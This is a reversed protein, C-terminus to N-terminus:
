LRWNSDHEVFIEECYKRKFERIFVPDWLESAIGLDKCCRMLANSKAGEAATPLGTLDYYDQEGRAVSILRGGIFLCYERSINKKNIAANGRPALGWGGPGFAKNLIRRYKIEPLYLLGDPKCEIDEVDIPALLIDSIEKSFAQSSLGFTSKTWDSGNPASTMLDLASGQEKKDEVKNTSLSFDNAYGAPHNDNVSPSPSANENEVGSDRNESSTYIHRQLLVSTFNEHETAIRIGAIALLKEMVKGRVIREYYEGTSLDKEPEYGDYVVKCNLANLSIAWYDPCVAPHSQLKPFVFPSNLNQSSFHSSDSDPLLQDISFHLQQGSQKKLSTSSSIGIANEILELKESDNCVIWDLVEKKWTTKLLKIIHNVYPDYFIGKDRPVKYDFYDSGEETSDVEHNYEKSESTTNADLERIQKYIIMSDWVSHLTAKHGEFKASSGLGGRDRKTLHLPQHLDGIFHVLFRLAEARPWYALDSKPDLRHTYNNIANIINKGRPKYNFSCHEPPFDDSPSVYHFPSTFKYAPLHKIRDAWSAIYTLNGKAENPLLGVVHKRAEPTLFRQAIAATIEH